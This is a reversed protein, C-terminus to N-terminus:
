SRHRVRNCTLLLGHFLLPSRRRHFRRASSRVRRPPVFVKTACPWSCEVGGCPLHRHPRDGELASRRSWADLGVRVAAKVVLTGSPLDGHKDNMSQEGRVFAIPSGVCTPVLTDPLLPLELM